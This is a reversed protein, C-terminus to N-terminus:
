VARRIARQVLDRVRVPDDLDAWVLRVVVYGADRLQDERRKEAQLARRGEAGGYKVMGDFEVIVREGVLFDVRAILGRDNTINVQSRVELGLDTLLVRTRTEGVSECRPDARRLVDALRHRASKGPALVDVADAFAEATVLGHHLARDLSVLGPVHGHDLVVQAVAIAAPMTALGDVDAADVGKPWPHLRAGARVRRRPTACVLDVALPVGWLPLGHVAVASTHSAAADPRDILVARTQAALRREPTAERWLAGEAFLGRRLRVLEGSSVHQAIAVEDAGVARLQATSCTGVAGTLLARIRPDM